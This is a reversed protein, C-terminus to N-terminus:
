FDWDDGGGYGGGYSSSSSGYESGGGYSSSSTTTTSMTTTSMTGNDDSSTTTVSFKKEDAFKRDIYDELLDKREANKAKINELREWQEKSWDKENKMGDVTNKLKKGNRYEKELINIARQKAIDAEAKTDSKNVASEMADIELSTYAEYLDIAEDKEASKWENNKNYSKVLEKARDDDYGGCSAMFVALFAFTLLKFTKM